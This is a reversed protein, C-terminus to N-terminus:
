TSIIDCFIYHRQRYHHGEHNMMEEAQLGTHTALGLLLTLTLTKYNM